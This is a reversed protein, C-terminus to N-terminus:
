GDLRFVVPVTITATVPKGARLAPRFRWRKVAKLAARDLSGHGSSRAIRASGVRGNGLVSARVLVRGEHGRSRAVRPYQPRPNGSVPAVARDIGGAASKGRGPKRSGAADAQKGKRKSGGQNKSNSPDAKSGAAKATSKRTSRSKNAKRAPQKKTKARPKPKAVLPRKPVVETMPRVEPPAVPRAIGDIPLAPRLMALASQDVSAQQLMPLDTASLSLSRVALDGDQGSSAEALTPVDSLLLWALLAHLLLAIGAAAAWQGKTFRGETLGSPNTM